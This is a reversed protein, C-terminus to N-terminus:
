ALEIAPKLPLCMGPVKDLQTLVADLGQGALDKDVEALKQMAQLFVHATCPTHWPPCRNNPGATALGPTAPPRHWRLLVYLTSRTPTAKTIAWTTCVCPLRM